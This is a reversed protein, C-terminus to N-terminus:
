EPSSLDLILRLKNNREIMFLPNARFEPFPPNDFPGSVIGDKVITAIQDTCNIASELLM